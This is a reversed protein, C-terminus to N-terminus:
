APRAGGGPAAPFIISGGTGTGVAFGVLGAATAAAPGASSGSSGREINWPNRTRGGFWVDGYALEGTSLKAVLVAGADRLREVATADITPRQEEYPKAGWTTRISRTA